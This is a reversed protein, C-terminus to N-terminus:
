TKISGFYRTMHSAKVPCHIDDEQVLIYKFREKRGNFYTVINKRGYTKEIM